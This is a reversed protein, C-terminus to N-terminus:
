RNSKKPEPHDPDQERIQKQISALFGATKARSFRVGVMLPFPQRTEMHGLFERYGDYQAPDLMEETIKRLQTLKAFSHVMSLRFPLTINLLGYKRTRRDKYNPVGKMLRVAYKGLLELYM